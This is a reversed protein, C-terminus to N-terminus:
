VGHAPGGNKQLRPGCYPCSPENCACHWLPPASQEFASPQHKAEAKEAARRCYWLEGLKHGREVGCVTASTDPCTCPKGQAAAELPAPKTIESLRHEIMARMDKGAHPSHELYYNGRPDDLPPFFIVKCHSWVANLRATVRELEGEINEYGLPASVTEPAARAEWGARFAVDIETRERSSELWKMLAAELQDKSSRVLTEDTM